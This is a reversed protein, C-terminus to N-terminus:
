SLFLLIHPFYNTGGASVDAVTQSLLQTFCIAFPKRLSREKEKRAPRDAFKATCFCHKRSRLLCVPSTEEVAIMKATTDM